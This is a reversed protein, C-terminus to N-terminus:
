GVTLSAKLKAEARAVTRQVESKSIGTAKASDRVTFEMFYKQYILQKERETLEKIAQQM